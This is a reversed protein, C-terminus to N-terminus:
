DLDAHQSGEADRKVSYEKFIVFARSSTELDCNWLIKQHFIKNKLKVYVPWM